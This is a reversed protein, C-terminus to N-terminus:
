GGMTGSTLKLTAGHRHAKAQSKGPRETQPPKRTGTRAQPNGPEPTGPEPKRSRAQQNGPERTGLEPQRIGSHRTGAEPKRSRPKPSAAEPKPSAALVSPVNRGATFALAQQKTADSTEAERLRALNQGQPVWSRFRKTGSHWLALLFPRTHWLVLVSRAKHAVLGSRIRGQPGCPWFASPRPHWLALVGSRGRVEPAQM